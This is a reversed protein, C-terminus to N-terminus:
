GEQQWFTFPLIITDNKAAGPRDDLYKESSLVIQDISVGDERTQIVLTQGGGSPFRLTVGNRNVAGWGDDEWGWGSVGCGSCEELNVALGSSTGTRYVPNGAADAAGGFQVWVSDNSWHNGDAKLRIWLKYTQTPDAVFTYFLYNTPNPVPTTVKPARLNRDYARNGGAATTDPVSSWNGNEFASTGWLVIEKTPVITVNVSDSAVGGRGDRVTATFTYTGHALGTIDLWREPVILAGAANRWEYSLAHQDPDSARALISPPTEFFQSAYEFTQDPGADVTPAHNTSNRRNVLVDFAGNSTPFVIDPLGDRTFDVVHVVPADFDFHEPGAFTGDGRGRMIYGPGGVLDLHGDLTIDAITVSYWNSFFDLDMTSPADFGSASGLSVRVTDQQSAVADLFGDHNLDALELAQLHFPALVTAGGAELNGTGDGFWTTITGVVMAVVDLKGDRNVDALELAGVFDGAPATAAPEFSGGGVGILVQIRYARVVPDFGAVVLDIRGDGNMDGQGLGWGRISWTTQPGRTFAGRGNGLFVYAIFPDSDQVAMVDAHGDNNFDGVMYGSFFQGVDIAVLPRDTILVHLKRGLTFEPKVVVDLKGDENFDAPTATSGGTEGSTTGYSRRGFSFGATDFDIENWLVSMNAASQNGTAVDIRGDHDVDEAVLARSGTGAAFELAERFNGPSEPRGLLVSITGTNRNATILDLRGDYNIDRAVIGRPSGGTFYARQFRLGTSGGLYVAVRSGGTSAAAADPWGDRNFDGAAVVNLNTEGAFARPTFGAGGNGTLVAIGGASEHAVVIDLHGDRNFDATDIGQPHLAFGNVAPGNVFGGSGTGLLVQVM